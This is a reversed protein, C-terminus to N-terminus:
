KVGKISSITATTGGSVITATSVTKEGADIPTTPPSYFNVSASQGGARSGMYSRTSATNTVGASFTGASSATFSMTNGLPINLTQSIVSLDQNAGLYTFTWRKTDQLGKVRAAIAAANYERSYNEAGDSVIVVLFSTNPDKAEELSSLQDVTRGVADYMATWGDCNYQELTLPHLKGIEENFIVPADAITSFTVFTVKTDMGKTTTEKLAKVQQNFMDLAEARIPGMSGSRDLIFAVRTKLVLAAKKTKRVIGTKKTKSKKAKAM